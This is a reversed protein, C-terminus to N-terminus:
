AAVAEPSAKASLADLAEALNRRQRLTLDRLMRTERIDLRALFKRARVAGWRKQAQLLEGVTMSEACSPIANSPRIVEAVALEGALVERKLEARASRIENARKLAKMHQSM